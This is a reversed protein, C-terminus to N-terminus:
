HGFAEDLWRRIRKEANPTDGDLTFGISECGTLGKIIWTSGNPNFAKYPNDGAYGSTDFRVLRFIAAFPKGNALRWEVQERQMGMGIYDTGLTAVTKGTSDLVSVTALSSSYDVVIRYGGAPRCHAQLGGEEDSPIKCEKLYTCASSLKVNAIGASQAVAPRLFACFLLINFLFRLMM